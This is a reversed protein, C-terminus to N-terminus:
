GSSMGQQLAHTKAEHRAARAGTTRVWRRARHEDSGDVVEYYPETAEPSTTSAVANARDALAEAHQDVLAQAASSTLLQDFGADNWEIRM